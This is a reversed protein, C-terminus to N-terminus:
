GEWKLAASASPPSTSKSTGTARRRARRGCSRARARPCWRRPVRLDPPELTGAAPPTEGYEPCHSLYLSIMSISISIPIFISMSIPPSLSLYVSLCLYISLYLDYKYDTKKPRPPPLPPPNYQPDQLSPAKTQPEKNESSGLHGGGVGGQGLPHLHEGLSIHLHEVEGGVPERDEQRVHELLDVPDRAPM